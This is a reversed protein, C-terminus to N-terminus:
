KELDLCTDRNQITLITQKTAQYIQSIAEARESTSLNINGKAIENIQSDRKTMVKDLCSWGFRFSSQKLFQTITKFLTLQFNIEIQSDYFRKHLESALNVLTLLMAKQASFFQDKIMEEPPCQVENCEDMLPLYTHSDIQKYLFNIKAILSLYHRFKLKEFHIPGLKNRTTNNINLTKALVPYAHTLFLLSQPQSRFDGPPNIQIGSKLSMELLRNAQSIKGVAALGEAATSDRNLSLVIKTAKDFALSLSTQGDSNAQVLTPLSILFFIIPPAILTKLM